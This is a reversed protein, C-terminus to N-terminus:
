ICMVCKSATTFPTPPTSVTSVQASCVGPTVSIDDLAIDGNFNTGRVGEFLVYFSTRSILDAQGKVWRDGQNGTMNYVQQKPGLSVMLYVNLSGVGPYYCSYFM